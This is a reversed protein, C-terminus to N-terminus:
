RKLEKEIQHYIDEVKGEGKVEVLLDEARYYDSLPKTQMNYVEIRHKVTEEKDDERQILVGGCSACKTKGDLTSIHYPAGCEQCSRRGTLRQTLKDAEIVLEIVIDIKEYKDLQKAQAITRPFGDLVYGNKCDSEKLRKTIMEITVSDPVLEGKDIYRKAIIGISTKESMNHRFIDGSSIHPLKFKECIIQAQTGKGSGPAGLLIIKM